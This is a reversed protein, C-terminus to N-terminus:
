KKSRSALIEKIFREDLGLARYVVEYAAVADHAAQAQKLANDDLRAAISDIFEWQYISRRVAEIQDETYPFLDFGVREGKSGYGYRRLALALDLTQMFFSAGVMNDDDFSGWGSNGHQHGLLGDNALLSAYEALSEGNM